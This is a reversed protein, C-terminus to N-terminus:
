EAYMSYMRYLNAAFLAAEDGGAGGRIEVIVSKDDDPDKPILLIKLEERIRECDARATQLEEEALAKFDPDLPTSLLEKAEAEATEAAKYERYKEIIPTLNKFERMLLRYQEQDSVVGPDMLRENIQEYRQEAAALKEIM